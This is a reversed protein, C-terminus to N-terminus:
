VPKTASKTADHLRLVTRANASSTALTNIAGSQLADLIAAAKTSESAITIVNPIRRLDRRTLGILRGQMNASSPRGHIDVFDYGKTDGIAGALHAEAVEQPSRM